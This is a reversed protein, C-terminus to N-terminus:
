ARVQAIRRNCAALREALQRRRDDATIRATGKPLVSDLDALKVVAERRIATEPRLSRKDPDFGQYRLMYTGTDLGAPDLWNHVGPDRLSLVYTIAGDADPRAQANSLSATHRAYDLSAGWLDSLQVGLYPSGMPDLTLVYAEDPTLRFHSNMTFQRGKVFALNQVPQLRNAPAFFYYRDMMQSWYGTAQEIIQAAQEALAHDDLAAPASGSVREAALTLPTEHAWDAMSDRVFVLKGAEALQLHNRRGAAPTPDATLRFSRDPALELEALTSTGLSRSDAGAGPYTDFVNFSVNVAPTQPVRGTIVYSAGPEIPLM